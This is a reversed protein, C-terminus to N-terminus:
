CTSNLVCLGYGSAETQKNTKHKIKIGKQTGVTNIQTRYLFLILPLSTDSSREKAMQGVLWGDTQEEM